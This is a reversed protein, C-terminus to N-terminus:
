RCMFGRDVNITSGTICRAKDSAAFMVADVVDDPETMFPLLGSAIARAIAEPDGAMVTPNAQTRAIVPAIAVCRVNHPGGEKAAAVTVATVAYKAIDYPNTPSHIVASSTNVIVGSKQATMVPLAYKCGYFVASLTVAITRDWTELTSQSLSTRNDYYAANNWLVDLRGWADTARRIMAEVDGPKSVDGAFPIVREAGVEGALRRLPEEHLDAAVVRGGEAAFRRVGVSGFGGAAGTIVVVKDQFQM